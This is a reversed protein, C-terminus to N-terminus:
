LNAYNVRQLPPAGREGSAAAADSQPAVPNAGVFQVHLAYTTNTLYFGGARFGLIHGSSSFQRLQDSATLDPQTGRAAHVSPMPAAALATILIALQAADALLGHFSKM